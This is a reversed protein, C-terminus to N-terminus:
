KGGRKARRKPKSQPGSSSDPIAAAPPTELSHVIWHGPKVIELRLKRAQDLARLEQHMPDWPLRDPGSELWINYPDVSGKRNVIDLIRRRMEERREAETMVLRVPRDRSSSVTM